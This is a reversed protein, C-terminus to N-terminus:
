IQAQWEINKLVYECEYLRDEPTLAVIRHFDVSGYSELGDIIGYILLQIQYQYWKKVSRVGDDELPIAGWPLIFILDYCKLVHKVCMEAYFNMWEEHEKHKGIWHLAYVLNDIPTRDAIWNDKNVEKQVKKNLISEQMKITDLIEMDRLNMQKKQLYNRVGEPVLTYNLEKALVEALTTKGTGASGTIGIRM